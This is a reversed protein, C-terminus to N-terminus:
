KALHVSKIIQVFGAAKLSAGGVLFGDVDECKWLESSNSDTVSGGYIIRTSDAVAESVKAALTKRIGAHAEQAQETTAVVGTGIAWVPEYAIVVQSWDKVSTLVASLQADCIAETEGAKRQELTEGVCLVTCIGHAHAQSVKAATDALSEGFKHRRESHGILTYKIGSDVLMEASVEGTFAGNANASIDQSCIAPHCTENFASKVLDFHVFPPAVVVEVASADWGTLATALAQASSRSGNCKWNGGVFPKRIM